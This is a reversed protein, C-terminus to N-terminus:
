LRKILSCFNKFNKYDQVQNHNHVINLLIVSRVLSHRLLLEITAVSNALYYFFLQQLVLGLLYLKEFRLEGEPPCPAAFFFPRISIWGRTFDLIRHFVTVFIRIFISYGFKQEIIIQFCLLSYSFTTYSSM